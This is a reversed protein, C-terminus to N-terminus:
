DADDLLLRYATWTQAVSWAQFPCGTAVHPADGCTTESISGLGYTDLHAILGNLLGVIPHGAAHRAAVYPGILWPWVTGQHYALDRTHGDGLHQGRYAPDDPALTRLGLPTLLHTDIADGPMQGHLPAYPLSYALLQNPRISRDPGAATLVDPLSGAASRPFAATFAATATHRRATFWGADRIGTANAADALTALAGLANIWLANIEVASGSRSTVPHGDVRADMWTLSTNPTGATILGRHDTGIGFRTGDAYADIISELVPLLAAALDTDGTAAVHRDAAHIFWLPADVSHFDIAGPGSTDATNPLMGGSVADAYRLLLARGQAARGATLILGEYSTFTDRSWAGFWPYGAVIDPGAIVFQDAALALTADM